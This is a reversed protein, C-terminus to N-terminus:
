RTAALTSRADPLFTAPMLRTGRFPASARDKKAWACAPCELLAETYPHTPNNLVDNKPGYEVVLGGYFVALNDCLNGVISIDHTIFILAM